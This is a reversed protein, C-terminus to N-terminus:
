KLKKIQYKNFSEPYNEIFEVMFRTVDIKDALLKQRKGAWREKLDPQQILEVAKAIAKEPKRYSFILGYRNELEIFNGMDNPGVFNNCRVAPTGLVAAETTLTQTDSVLLQAYYVAHHIRHYPIPLKYSELDHSLRGEPSIFVHAYKELQKILEYKDSQSFGHRGIDHVADFANFRLIVFKEKCDIGLENFISPDPQFYNPHLYAIEKYGNIRIQKKGLNKRFCSPTIIVNAFARNIMHQFPVPESDAFIICPKRLLASALPEDPGIGVIIDPIFRRALIYERFSYALLQLAKMYKHKTAEIYVDYHFEYKDLLGLTYSYDRALIKIEHGRNSLDDIVNKFLHVHAPTHICFVVRM